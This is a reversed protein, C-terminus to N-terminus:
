RVAVDRVRLVAGPRFQIVHFRLVVRAEEVGPMWGHEYINLFPKGAPDLSEVALQIGDLFVIDPVTEDALRAQATRLVGNPIGVPGLAVEYPGAHDIALDVSSISLPRGAAEAQPEIAPVPTACDTPNGVSDQGGCAIDHYGGGIPSAITITPEAQCAISAQSGVGCFFPSDEARGDPQTIRVIVPTGGGSRTCLITTGDPQPGCGTMPPESLLEVRAAPDDIGLQHRAIAVVADCRWRSLHFDACGEPYARVLQTAAPGRTGSGGLSGSAAICGATLIATVALFAALRSRRPM